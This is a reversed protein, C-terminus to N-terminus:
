IIGIINGATTGSGTTYVKICQVPLMAGSQVNVFTLSVSAMTLLVVTGGTGVYLARAPTGLNSASPTIEFGSYGPATITAPSFQSNGATAAM